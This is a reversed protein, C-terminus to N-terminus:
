RRNEYLFFSLNERNILNGAYIKEAKVMNMFNMIALSTMEPDVDRFAGEDIGDRIIGCLIARIARIDEIVPARLEDPPGLADQMLIRMLDARGSEFCLDVNVQLVARLREVASERNEQAREMERRMHAVEEKIVAYYLNEKSQYYYFILAKNVQATDAIEKVSAGLLGKSAFVKQAALRIKEKASGKAM